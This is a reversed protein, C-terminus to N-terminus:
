LGLQVPGGIRGCSGTRQLGVHGRFVALCVGFSASWCGAWAHGTQQLPQNPL